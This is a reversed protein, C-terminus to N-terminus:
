EKILRYYKDKYVLTYIGPACFSIDVFESSMSHVEKGMVDFVKFESEFTNSNFYIGSKSPIPYIIDKNTDNMDMVGAQSTRIYVNQNSTVEQNNLSFHEMEVPYLPDTGLQIMTGYREGPLVEVTDNVVASPLPRGDSSITTAAVNSPFIYRVGQYGINVLRMYVKDNEAATYYNMPDSLQTGSQGNNMFYQPEFTNPIMIPNGTGYEHLLVSNRHWVTDIESSTWVFERNYTEGGTWTLNANGDSPRVVIVGYMGAQVHITSVVHCHYIYTGPHPAKFRYYGHEQHGVEFSLDPVGDNEQNVDLGHLHITHPAGQSMNWFDILVSDGENIYITPGPIEIEAALTEAFGFIRTSDGDHFHHIGYNRGVILKTYDIQGFSVQGLLLISFILVYKIM